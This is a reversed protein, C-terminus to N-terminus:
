QDGAQLMQRLLHNPVLSKSPLRLGTLPSTDNLSLWKEIAEREFTHGDATCVPDVMRTHLIPCLFSGSM